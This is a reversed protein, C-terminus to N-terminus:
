YDGDVTLHNGSRLYITKMGLKRLKSRMLADNTVVFAQLQRAVEIVGADGQTATEAVPYKRALSLAVQAHKNRSRHLEGIVCGPVFVQCAGLLRKLELDLNIKFEFPMLLANTDLVVNQM